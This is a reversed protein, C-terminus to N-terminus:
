VFGRGVKHRQRRDTKHLATGFDKRIQGRHDVTLPAVGPRLHALAGRAQRSGQRACTYLAAAGDTHHEGVGGLHHLRVVSHWGQIRHEVGQVGAEIGVQQRPLHVVAFGRDQDGIKLKGGRHRFSQLNEFLFKLALQQHNIHAVALVGPSALTHADMRVFSPQGLM